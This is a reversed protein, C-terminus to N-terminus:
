LYPTLRVRPLGELKSGREPYADALDRQHTRQVERASMGTRLHRRIAAYLEVNSWPRGSM